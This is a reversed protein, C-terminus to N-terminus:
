GNEMKKLLKLQKNYISCITYYTKAIFPYWDSFRYKGEGEDEIPMTDNRRFLITMSHYVM